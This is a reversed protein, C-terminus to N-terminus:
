YDNDLLTIINLDSFGGVIKLPMKDNKAYPMFPWESKKPDYEKDIARLYRVLFVLPDEHYVWKNFAQEIQMDIGQKRSEPIDDINNINVYTAVDNEETDITGYWDIVMNDYVIYQDWPCINTWMNYKKSYVITDGDMDTYVVVTRHVAIDEPCLTYTYKDIVEMAIPTHNCLILKNPMHPDKSGDYYIVLPIASVVSGHSM